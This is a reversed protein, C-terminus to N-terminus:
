ELACDTLSRLTALAFSARVFLGALAATPALARGSLIMAAIVAGMTIRGDLALYVGIVVIAVSSAQQAFGTLTTALTALRRNAEQARASQAVQEEWRAQM